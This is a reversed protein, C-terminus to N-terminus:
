GERELMVTARGSLIEVGMQELAFSYSAGSSNGMLLHVHVSLPTPTEDIYITHLRVNRLGVLFGRRGRGAAGSSLVGHLAMAQAAIEIGSAAGLTGDSRRLPNEHDYHRVSLCIISKADWTVVADLLCMKGEHPILAAIGNRDMLM